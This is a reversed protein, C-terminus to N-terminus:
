GHPSSRCPSCTPLSATLRWGIFTTPRMLRPLSARSWRRSSAPQHDRQRGVARRAVWALQRHRGEDAARRSRLGRGAGADGCVVDPLESASGIAAGLRAGLACGRDAHPHDAGAPRAHRRGARHRDHFLLTAHRSRRGLAGSLVDDRAARRVGGMKKDAKQRPPGPGAGALCPHHLVGRRRRGGHSLRLDVVRSRRRFHVLRQLSEGLDRRAQRRAADGRDRRYRGAARRARPCRDRRANTARRRKRPVGLRGHGSAYDCQGRRACIRVRRDTPFLSRPRFRILGAGAAAAASRAHSQSRRVLGRAAGSRAQGLAAGTAAQRRHSQRRHPRRAARLPRHAPEGRAARCLGCDDRGIGSLAAGPTRDHRNEGHRRCLGRRRRFCFSRRRLRGSAPAAIRRRRACVAALTTAAWWAPEREATFYIVIGFGYAVALWPLLRDAAIEQAAWQRLKTALAFNPRPRIVHWAPRIGVPWPWPGSWTGARAGAHARSEVSGDQAM